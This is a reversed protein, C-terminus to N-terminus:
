VFGLESLLIVIAMVLVFWGFYVKLQPPKVFRSIKDGIFLGAIALSTYIALFTWDINVIHTMDGAFGILSNIAIILLSTGIAFRMPLHALLVLAPVILFGGGVGLLGTVAGVLVGEFVILPYNFELKSVDNNDCNVCVARIMNFSALLMFVAFMIMLFVDKTIVTDGAQLIVEPLVPLLLKRVLLVSVMSPLAFLLATQMHLLGHKWYKWAGVLATTGVIFLSYSTATVAPIGVVYVLVPITLISGGAGILGLLVGILMSFLYGM